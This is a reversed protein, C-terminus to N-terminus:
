RIGHQLPTLALPPLPMEIDQAAVGLSLPEGSKNMKNPFGDRPSSDLFQSKISESFIHNSGNMKKISEENYRMINAQMNSLHQVNPAGAEIVM